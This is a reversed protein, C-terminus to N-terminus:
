RKQPYQVDDSDYKFVLKIEELIAELKTAIEVLKQSGDPLAGRKNAEGIRANEELDNLFVLIHSLTQQLEDSM